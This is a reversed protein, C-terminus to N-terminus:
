MWATIIPELEPQGSNTETRVARELCLDAAGKSLGDRISVEWYCGNGGARCPSTNQLKEQHLPSSKESRREGKQWRDGENESGCAFNFDSCWFERKIGTNWSGREWEDVARAKTKEEGRRAVLQRRPRNQERSQAWRQAKCSAGIEADFLGRELRKVFKAREVASHSSAPQSLGAAATFDFCVSRIFHDSLRFVHVYLLSLLFPFPFRPCWGRSGAM